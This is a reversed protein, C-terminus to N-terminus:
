IFIHINEAVIGTEGAIEAHKRLNRFEGQVPIFHKPMLMNLMMEVRRQQM